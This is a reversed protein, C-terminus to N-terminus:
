DVDGEGKVKGPPTKRDKPDRPTPGPEEQAVPTPTLIGSPRPTPSAVPPPTSSFEFGPVGKMELIDRVVSALLSFMILFALVVLIYKLRTLVFVERVSIGYLFGLRGKKGVKYLKTRESIGKLKKNGVYVVPIENRNMALYVSQTLYVRGAAGAACVRAALNVPTGFVDHDRIIVDGSSIGIRLKFKGEEPSENHERVREQIKVGCAVANTPSDFVVLFGDGTNKIIKGGFESSVISTTEENKALLASTEQRTSDSTKATFGQIDTFMVALNKHEM